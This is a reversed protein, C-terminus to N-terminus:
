KRKKFKFWGAVVGFAMLMIGLVIGYSVPPTLSMAFGQTLIDSM